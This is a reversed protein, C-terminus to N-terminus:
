ENSILFFSIKRQGLYFLFESDFEFDIQNQDIICNFYMTCELKKNQMELFIDVPKSAIWSKVKELNEEVMEYFDDGSNEVIHSSDLNFFTIRSSAYKGVDFTIEPFSALEQGLLPEIFDSKSVNSGDLFIASLSVWVTKLGM